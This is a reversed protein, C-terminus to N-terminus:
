VLSRAIQIIEEASITGMIEWQMEPADWFLVTKINGRPFEVLTASHGLIDIETLKVDNSFGRTSAMEGLINRQQISFYNDGNQFFQHIDYHQDFKIVEVKLCEYGEPLYEPYLLHFPTIEQAESFSVTFKEPEPEELVPPPPVKANTAGERTVKTRVEMTGDQRELIIKEVRSSLATVFSPSNLSIASILCLFVVAAQVLFKRRKRRHEQYNRKIIRDWVLQFEPVEIKELEKQLQAQFNREYEPQNLM